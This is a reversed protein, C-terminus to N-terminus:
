LEEQRVIGVSVRYTITYLFLCIVKTPHFTSLLLINTCPRMFWAALLAQNLSRLLYEALQVMGPTAVTPYTYLHNLYAQLLYSGTENNTVGAVIMM